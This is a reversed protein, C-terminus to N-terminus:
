LFLIQIFDFSKLSSGTKKKTESFFGLKKSVVLCLNFEDRGILVIGGSCM